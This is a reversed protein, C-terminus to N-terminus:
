WGLAIPARTIWPTFPTAAAAVGVMLASTNDQPYWFSWPDAAFQALAHLPTYSASFMVAAITSLSRANMPPTQGIAYTGNPAQSSAVGSGAVITTQGTDLQVIAFGSVSANCSMAVFYPVGTKMQYGSSIGTGNWFNLRLVAPNAGSFDIQVGGSTSLTSSTFLCNETVVDPQYLFIAALTVSTDNAISQGPFTVASTNGGLLCGQGVYSNTPTTSATGAQTAAVDNLLNIFGGAAAQAIGSFRLNRTAPHAFDIAPQVGVPFVLPNRRRRIIKRSILM